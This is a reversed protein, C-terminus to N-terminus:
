KIIGNTTGEILPPNPPANDNIMDTKLADSSTIFILLKNLPLCFTKLLNKPM